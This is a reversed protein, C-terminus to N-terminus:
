TTFTNTLENMDNNHERLKQIMEEESLHPAMEKLARLNREFAYQSVPRAPLRLPDKEEEDSIGEVTDLLLGSAQNRRSPSERVNGVNLKLTLPSGAHDKGKLGFALTYLGDVAPAELDVVLEKQEGPNVPGVAVSNCKCINDKVPRLELDAPWPLTGKNSAKLALQFKAKPVVTLSSQPSALSLETESQTPRKSKTHVVKHELEQPLKSGPSDVPQWIGEIILMSHPHRAAHICEECINYSACTDCKYRLGVIPKCHCADCAIESHVTRSPNTQKALQQLGRQIQTESQSCKSVIIQIEAQQKLVHERLKKLEAVSDRADLAANQPLISAHFTALLDRGNQELAVLRTELEAVRNVEPQTVAAELEALSGDMQNRPMVTGEAARRAQEATAQHQATAWDLALTLAHHKFDDCSLLKLGKAIAAIKALFTQQTSKIAQRLTQKFQRVSATLKGGFEHLAVQEKALNQDQKASHEKLTAVFSGLGTVKHTNHTVICEPCIKVKCTRCYMSLKEEPHTSCNESGM